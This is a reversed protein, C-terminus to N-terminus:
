TVYIYFMCCAGCGGGGCDIGAEGNNQVGDNNCVVLICSTNLIIQLMYKILLSRSM